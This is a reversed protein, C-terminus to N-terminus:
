EFRDYFRNLREDHHFYPEFMEELREVAALFRELLGNQWRFVGKRDSLNLRHFFLEIRKRFNEHVIVSSGFATKTLEVQLLVIVNGCDERKRALSSTAEQTEHQSWVVIVEEM